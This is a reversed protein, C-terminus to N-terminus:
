RLENEDNHNNYFMEKYLTDYFKRKRAKRARDRAVIVSVVIFIILAGILSYVLTEM